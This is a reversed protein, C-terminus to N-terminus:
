SGGGGMVGWVSGIGTRRGSTSSRGSGMPDRVFGRKRGVDFLGVFLDIDEDDSGSNRRKRDESKDVAADPSQHHHQSELKRGNPPAGTNHATEHWFSHDEEDTDNRALSTAHSAQRHLRGAKAKAHAGIGGSDSVSAILHKQLSKISNQRKSPLLMRALNLEGEEEDDESEGSYSEYEVAEGESAYATKGKGFATGTGVVCGSEPRSRKRSKMNSSWVDGEVHMRALSPVKLMEKERGKL